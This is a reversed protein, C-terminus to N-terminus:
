TLDVEMSILETSGDSGPKGAPISGAAFTDARLRLGPENSVKAADGTTLREGNVDLAGAIVYLYHGMGRPIPHELETGPALRAVCMSANGHVTVADGGEPSIARLLRGTRDEATFVKQEVGPPLGREAPMIWVQIFRMGDTQSANQESHWAGRGLTMRQVSGAPLPGFDGGVDDQHGFLGEVV